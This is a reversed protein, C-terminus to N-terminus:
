LGKWVWASPVVEQFTRIGPISSYTVAPYCVPLTSFGLRRTGLVVLSLPQSAPDWSTPM